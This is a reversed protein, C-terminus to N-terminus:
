DKFHWFPITVLTDNKVRTSDNPPALIRLIHKGEPLNRINLYTEFGLRKHKDTTVTYETSFQLTDIKISYIKSFTDLYESEKKHNESNDIGFDIGRLDIEPKVSKNTKFIQDEIEEKYLIFVKLYSTNIVKSPISAIQIFDENKSLLDDYNRPNSYSEWSVQNDNLYNSQKFNINDLLSVILYLPILVFMLKKGFKNDLFNYVLPRYLFSLTLYSFLWYIPFYMKAILKNKKLIGQGIFDIFVVFSLFIYICLTISFLVLAWINESIHSNDILFYSVSLIVFLFIFFALVYFILLFSIAFLISCYKELEGIYKDFSGIKKKLYFTFKDTYNLTKYDIDGSVYRLGVAGIWLGRFIVHLILNFTLISWISGIIKWLLDLFDLDMEKAKLSAVNIPDYALILAYIAFGSIILELQWSEQQLKDLWKKFAPSRYDNNM